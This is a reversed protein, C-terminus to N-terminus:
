TGVHVHEGHTPTERQEKMRYAAHRERSTQLLARQMAALQVRGALYADVDVGIERLAAREASDAESPHDALFALVQTRTYGGVFTPGVVVGIPTATGQTTRSRGPDAFLAGPVDRRGGAVRAAETGPAPATDLAVRQKFRDFRRPIVQYHLHWHIPRVPENPRRDPRSFEEAYADVAEEWLEARVAWEDVHAKLKESWWAQRDTGEIVRRQAFRFTTWRTPDSFAARLPHEDLYAWIRAIAAPRNEEDTMIPEDEPAPATDGPPEGGEEVAKPITGTSTYPITSDVDNVVGAHSTSRGLMHRKGGRPQPPLGPKGGEPQPPLRRQGGEPESLGDPQGGEAPDALLALQEGSDAPHEATIAQLVEHPIQPDYRQRAWGRRSFGANVKRIWGAKEAAKLHTIICQKTLGTVDMLDLAKQGGRTEAEIAPYCNSGDADMFQGLGALVLRTTSAPGRRSMFARRWMNLFQSEEAPRDSM